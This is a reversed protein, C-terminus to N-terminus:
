NTTCKRYALGGKLIHELEWPKNRMKLVQKLTPRYWEITHEQGPRWDKFFTSRAQRGCKECNFMMPIVGADINKTKTIHECSSCVYNNIVASPDHKYYDSTAVDQMLKNYQREVERQSEM